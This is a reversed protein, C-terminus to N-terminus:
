LSKEQTHLYTKITDWNQSLMISLKDPRNASLHDKHQNM